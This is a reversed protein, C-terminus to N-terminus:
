PPTRQVDGFGQVPRPVLRLNWRSLKVPPLIIRLELLLRRPTMFWQTWGIREIAIDIEEYFSTQRGPAFGHDVAATGTHGCDFPIITALFVM